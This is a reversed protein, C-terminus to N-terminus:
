RKLLHSRVMAREQPEMQRMKGESRTEASAIRGCLEPTPWQWIRDLLNTGVVAWALLPGAGWWGWTRYSLVFSLALLVYCLWGISLWWWPTMVNQLARLQRRNDGGLDDSALRAVRLVFRQFHVVTTNALTYIVIGLVAGLGMM